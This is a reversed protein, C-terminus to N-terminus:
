ADADGYEVDQLFTLEDRLTRIEADYADATPSAGDLARMWDIEGLRWDIRAHLYRRLECITDPKMM